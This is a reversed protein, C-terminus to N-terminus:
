MGPIPLITSLYIRSYLAVYRTHTSYRKPTCDGYWTVLILWIVQRRWEKVGIRHPSTADFNGTPILNLILSSTVRLISSQSYSNDPAQLYHLIENNLQSQHKLPSDQDMGNFIDNNNDKQRNRSNWGTELLHPWEQNMRVTNGQAPTMRITSSYIGIRM